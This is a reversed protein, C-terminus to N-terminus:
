KDCVLLQHGLATRYPGCTRMYLNLIISFQQSVEKTHLEARLLWFLKHGIKEPNGLARRLLFRTLANDIFIEFKLLQTLQLMYGLLQDDDLTGLLQVAYARVRPDAYHLDLMQLAQVYGPIEWKYLLQFAESVNEHNFWDVALLFKPLYDPIGVLAYRLRWVITADDTSMSAIPNNIVSVFRDKEIPAMRSLYWNLDQSIDPTFTTSGSGQARQKRQATDMIEYLIPTDFSPLEIQLVKSAGDIRSNELSPVNPTPCEGDWLSLECLGTKLVHEFNFLTLGCWGVPHNNKSYLNFIVRCGQPLNGFTIDDYRIWTDFTCKLLGGSIKNDLKTSPVVETSRTAGFQVGGHFIQMNCKLHNHVKGFIAYGLKIRFPEHVQYIPTYLVNNLRTSMNRLVEGMQKAVMVALVEDSKAFPVNALTNIFQLVGAVVGPRVFVPICLM